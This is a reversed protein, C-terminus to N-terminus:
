RLLPLWLTVGVRASRRDFQPNLGVPLGITSDFRYRYYSFEGTLATLRTMAFQMRGAGSYNDTTNPAITTTLEGSTFGGRLSMTLRKNLAGGVNIALSDAFLPQPFGAILGVGRHYAATAQWTRGFERTIHFDGVIRFESSGDKIGVATTGTTFGVTTRRTLSLAHNFDIGLEINQFDVVDHQGPRLAYDGRQFGYGAVVGIDRTVHYLFRGNAYDSRFGIGPEETFETRQTSANLTLSARGITQLFSGTTGLELGPRRTLIQDTVAVADTPSGPAMLEPLTSYSYFPAYGVMQSVNFQTHGFVGGVRGVVQHRLAVLDNIDQYYRVSSRGNVGFSFDGAKKTLMAGVDLSDFVGREQALGDYPQDTNNDDFGRFASVALDFGEGKAARGFLGQTPRQTPLTISQASLERATLLCAAAVALTAISHRLTNTM